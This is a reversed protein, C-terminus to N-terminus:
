FQRHLLEVLSVDRWGLNPSFIVVGRESDLPGPVSCGIARLAAKEAGVERLLVSLMAGARTIIEEAGRTALTEVRRRALLTGHQDIRGALIKTGGIDLTGTLRSLNM